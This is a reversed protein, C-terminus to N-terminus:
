ASSCPLQSAPRLNSKFSAVTRPQRLRFSCMWDRGGLFFASLPVLLLYGLSSDSSTSQTVSVLSVPMTIVVALMRSFALSSALFLCRVNSAECFQHRLNMFRFCSDTLLRVSTAWFSGMSRLSLSTLNWLNMMFIRPFCLEGSDNISCASSVGKVKSVGPEVFGFCFILAFHQILSFVLNIHELNWTKKKITELIPPVVQPYVTILLLSSFM